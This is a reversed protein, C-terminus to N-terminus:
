AILEKIQEITPYKKLVGTSKCAGCDDIVYEMQSAVIGSGGCMWCRDEGIQIDKVLGYVYRLRMDERLNRREEDTLWTYRRAAEYVADKLIELM